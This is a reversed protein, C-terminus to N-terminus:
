IAGECVALQRGSERARTLRVGTNRASMRTRGERVEAVARRQEGSWCQESSVARPQQGCIRGKGRLSGPPRRKGKGQGPSRVSSASLFSSCPWAPLPRPLPTALGQCHLSGSRPLLYSGSLWLAEATGSDEHSSGRRSITAMLRYFCDGGSFWAHLLCPPPEFSHM